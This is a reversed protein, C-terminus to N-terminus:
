PDTAQYNLEYGPLAHVYISFLKENKPVMSARWFLEEDSMSHTLNKPRLFSGMSLCDEKKCNVVVTCNKCSTAPMPALAKYNYYQEALISFSRNIHSTSILGIVVGVVFIILVSIVRLLEVLSDKAVSSPSKDPEDRRTM